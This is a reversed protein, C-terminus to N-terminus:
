KKGAAAATLGALAKTMKAFVADRDSIGHRAKLASPLTYSLHVKGNADQWALAKMPLDLGITRSSQMLPTGLKPNGFLLLETAPMAKGVSKAGAGHNVRGFITIGKSKLIKTLRDLTEGVSFKSPITRIDAAGAASTALLIATLTAFALTRM